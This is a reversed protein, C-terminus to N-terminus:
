AIRMFSGLQHICNVIQWGGYAAARKPIFHADKM